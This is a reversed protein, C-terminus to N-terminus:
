SLPHWAKCRVCYLCESLQTRRTTLIAVTKVRIWRHGLVHCLLSSRQDRAWRTLM